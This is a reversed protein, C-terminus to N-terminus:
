FVFDVLDIKKVIHGKGLSKGYDTIENRFHTDPNRSHVTDNRRRIKRVLLHLEGHVHPHRLLFDLVLVLLLFTIRLNLSLDPLFHLLYGAPTHHLVQGFRVHDDRVRGM